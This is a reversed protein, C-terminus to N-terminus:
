KLVVKGVYRYIRSDELVQEKKRAVEKTETSELLIYCKHELFERRGQETELNYESTISSDYYLHKALISGKSVVDDPNSRNGGPNLKLKNQKSNRHQLLRRKLNTSIGVKLPIGDDTFLEYIGSCSPAKLNIQDFNIKM